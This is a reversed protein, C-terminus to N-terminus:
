EILLKFEGSSRFILKPDQESSVSINDGLNEATLRISSTNTIIGIDKGSSGGYEEVRVINETPAASVNFMIADLVNGDEDLFEVLVELPKSTTNEIEFTVAGEIVRDAFLDVGFGDFNFDNSYFSTNPTSNILQETTEFYFISGEFTPTVELDDLQNFDQEEMCSSLLLMGCFFYFLIRKMGFFTDTGFNLAM